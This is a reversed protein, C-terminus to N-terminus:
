SSGSSSDTPDGRNRAPPPKEPVPTKPEAPQGRPIPTDSELLQVEADPIVELDGTAEGSEVPYPPGGLLWRGETSQREVPPEPPLELTSLSAVQWVEGGPKRRPSTDQDDIPRFVIDDQTPSEEAGAAAPRAEGTEPQFKVRLEVTDDFYNVQPPPPAATTKGEADEPPIPKTDAELPRVLVRDTDREMGILKRYIERLSQRTEALSFREDLRARARNGLQTALERNLLVKKLAEALAGADGPPVLLGSVGDELLEQVYPYRAAVIPRRCAMCTLLKHPASCPKLNREHVGLPVVAVDARAIIAGLRDFPVQPLVEVRKGMGRMQAKGLLESKGPDEEPCLVQLRAPVTRPLLELARLVTGLGQWPALNGLYFVTGAQRSAETVELRSSDVTPRVLRIREAAVKEGELWACMQESGALLMDAGALCQALLKDLGLTREVHAVDRPYLARFELPQLSHIEFVLKYGARKKHAVLVSGEWLSHFHCLRYDESELQRSLARQFGQITSLIDEGQPVRLVRAGYLREIHSLDETKLTLVDVDLPGVLVRIEEELWCALGSVGPVRDFAVLLVKQRKSSTM